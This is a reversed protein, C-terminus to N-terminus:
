AAPTAPAPAVATAAAYTGNAKTILYASQLAVGGLISVLSAIGQEATPLTPIVGAVVSNFADTAMTMKDKGAVADGHIGQVTLVAVQAIQVFMPLLTLWNM